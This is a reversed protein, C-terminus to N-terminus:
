KIDVGGFMCTGNVYITVANDKSNQHKKDSIGGFLSTSSTKINVDNPVIIDIGGFVASANIVCDKEIIANTLDCRVGGFVATLEASEFVENDYNLKTGSFAAYGNKLTKGDAELEKVIKYSKNGIFGGLIMKLGIIIIIAPIALKWFLDFSMVDQCCLLLFVGILLGIINGTKEHDAFLGIFCPVIIFLTWWGDFFIDFNTIEFVNLVIIVGIAVLVFGWLIRSVKKM